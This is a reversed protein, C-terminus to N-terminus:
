TAHGCVPGVFNTAGVVESGGCLVEVGAGVRGADM